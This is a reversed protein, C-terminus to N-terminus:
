ATPTRTTKANVVSTQFNLALQGEPLPVVAKVVTSNSSLGQALKALREDHGVGETSTFQVTAGGDRLTVENLEYEAVRRSLTEVDIGDSSAVDLPSVKGEVQDKRDAVFATFDPGELALTQSRISWTFTEKGTSFLTEAGSAM